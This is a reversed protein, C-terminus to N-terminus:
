TGEVLAEGAGVALAVVVVVVVVGVIWEEAKGHDNSRFTGFDFYRIQRLQVLVVCALNVCIIDPIRFNGIGFRRAM